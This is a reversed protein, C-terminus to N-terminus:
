GPYRVTPTMLYPNQAIQAQQHSTQATSKPSARDRNAASLATERAFPTKRIAVDM